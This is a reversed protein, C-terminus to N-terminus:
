LMLLQLLVNFVLAVIITVRVWRHDERRWMAIGCALIALAITAFSVTWWYKAYQIFQQRNYDTMKKAVAISVANEYRKQISTTVTAILLLFIAAFYFINRNKRTTIDTARM